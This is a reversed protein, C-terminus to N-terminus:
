DGSVTTIQGELTVFEAVASAENSQVRQSPPRFLARGQAATDPGVPLNYSRYIDTSKNFFAKRDKLVVNKFTYTHELDIKEAMAETLNAAFVEEGNCLACVNQTSWDATVTDGFHFATAVAKTAKAVCKLRVTIARQYPTYRKKDM